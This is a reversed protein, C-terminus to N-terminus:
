WTRPEPPSRRPPWPGFYGPWTRALRIRQGTCGPGVMHPWAARTLWFGAYVNVRMCLDFDESPLDEIPAPRPVSSANHIIGDIRGFADVCTAAASRAGQEDTLNVDCAVAEGGATRIEDVVLKAVSADGGSGDVNVGSDAVMVKAGRSALLM